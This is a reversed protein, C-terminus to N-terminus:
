GKVRLNYIASYNNELNPEFFEVDIDNFLELDMYDKAGQGSIYKTAGVHKCINYILESKKGTVPLDSSFIMDTEINLKKRCYKISEMNVDIFKESNYINSLDLGLNFKINKLLKKKWGYDPALNVENIKLEYTNKAIPVTLWFDSGNKLKILNRNQWHRKGQFKVDDLIVFLDAEEMKQFFGMYPFHEPQHIAVKM